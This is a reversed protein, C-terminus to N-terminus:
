ENTLKNKIYDETLYFFYTEIGLYLLYFGIFVLSFDRMQVKVFLYYVGFFLLSAFIKVTRIIMYLNVRKRQDGKFDRTIANVFFLGMIYFVGPITPYWTFYNQPLFSKLLWGVGYGTILIVVTLIVNLKIKLKEM